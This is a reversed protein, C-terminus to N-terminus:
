KLDGAFKGNPNNKLQLQLAPLLSNDPRDGASRIAEKHQDPDPDNLSLASVLDAIIRRERFPPPKIVASLDPKAVYIPQNDSGTIPQATLADILPLVSGKGAVDTRPGYIILRTDRLQLLGDRYAKLAPILRADGRQAVLDYIAQRASADASGMSKLGQVIEPPVASSDAAISSAAFVLLLVFSFRVASHTM